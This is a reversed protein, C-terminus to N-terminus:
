RGHHREIQTKLAAPLPHTPILRLV